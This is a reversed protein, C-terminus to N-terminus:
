TTHPIRTKENSDNVERRQCALDVYPTDTIELKLFIITLIIFKSRQKKDGNLTYGRMSLLLSKQYKTTTL